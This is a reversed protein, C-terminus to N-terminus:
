FYAHLVIMLNTLSNFHPSVPDNDREVIEEASSWNPETSHLIRPPIPNVALASGHPHPDDQVLIRRRRGQSLSSSTGLGSDCACSPQMSSGLHTAYSPLMSLIGEIVQNSFPLSVTDQLEQSPPRLLVSGHVVASPHQQHSSEEISIHASASVPSDDESSTSHEPRHHARRIQSRCHQLLLQLISRPNISLQRAQVRCPHAVNVPYPQSRLHTSSGAVICASAPPYPNTEKLPKDNQGRFLSIPPATRSLQRKTPSQKKKKKTKRHTSHLRVDGSSESDKDGLYGTGGAGGSSKTKIKTDCRGGDSANGHRRKTARFKNTSNLLSTDNRNSHVSITNASESFDEVSNYPNQLAPACCPTADNAHLQSCVPIGTGSIMTTAASTGSSSYSLSQNKKKVTATGSSSYSLSRNKKKVASQGNKDEGNTNFYRTNRSRTTKRKNSPTLHEIHLKLNEKQLRCYREQMLTVEARERSRPIQHVCQFTLTSAKTAIAIGDAEHKCESGCLSIGKYSRLEIIAVLEKNPILSLLTCNVLRLIPCQRAAISSTNGDAKEFLSSGDYFQPAATCTPDNILQEREPLSTLSVCNPSRLALHHHASISTIQTSEAIQEHESLNHFKIVTCNDYVRPEVAIVNVSLQEKPSSTHFKVMPLNCALLIIKESAPSHLVTPLQSVITTPTSSNFLIESLLRRNPYVGKTINHYLLTPPCLIAEELHGVAVCLGRTPTSLHHVHIQLGQSPILPPPGSFIGEIISLMLISGLESPVKWLTTLVSKAGAQIFAWAMGQIGDAKVTVRGSDCCSLIVLAQSIHGHLREQQLSAADGTSLCQLAQQHLALLNPPFQYRSSPPKRKISFNEYEGEYQGDNSEAAIPPPKVTGISNSASEFLSLEPSINLINTQELNMKGVDGRSIILDRIVSSNQRRNKVDAPDLPKLTPDIPNSSQVPLQVETHASAKICLNAIEQLSRPHSSFPANKIDQGQCLSPSFKKVKLMIDITLALTKGDVNAIGHISTPKMQCQISGATNIFARLIHVLDESLPLRDINSIASLWALMSSEYLCMTGAELQFPSSLLFQFIFCDRKVPAVLENQMRCCEQFFEGWQDSFHISIALLRSTCTITEYDNHWNKLRALVTPLDGIPIHNTRHVESTAPLPHTTNEFETMSAEFNIEVHHAAKISQPMCTLTEIQGEANSTPCKFKCNRTPFKSAPVLVHSCTQVRHPNDTKVEFLQPEYKCDLNSHNSPQDDSPSVTITPRTDKESPSCHDLNGNKARDVVGDSLCPTHNRIKFKCRQPRPPRQCYCKKIRRRKKRSGHKKKKQNLRHDQDKDCITTLSPILTKNTSEVEQETLSTECIVHYFSQIRYLLDYFRSTVNGKYIAIVVIVIIVIGPGVLAKHFDICKFAAHALALVHDSNAKLASLISSVNYAAAATESKQALTSSGAVETVNPMLCVAYQSANNTVIGCQQPFFILFIVVFFIINWFLRCSQDAKFKVLVPTGPFSALGKCASYHEVRRKETTNKCKTHYAPLIQRVAQCIQSLMQLLSLIASSIAFFASSTSLFSLAGSQFPHSYLLSLFIVNSNMSREEQAYTALHVYNVACTHKAEFSQSVFEKFWENVHTSYNSVSFPLSKSLTQPDAAQADCMDDDMMRWNENICSGNFDLAHTSLPSGLDVTKQSHSIALKTTFEMDEYMCDWFRPCYLLHPRKQENLNFNCSTQNSMLSPTPMIIHVTETHEEMLSIAPMHLKGDALLVDYRGHSHQFRNMNVNGAPAQHKFTTQIEEIISFFEAPSMTDAVVHIDAALSRLRNKIDSDHGAAIHATVSQLQNSIDNLQHVAQHIFILIIPFIILCIAMFFHYFSVQFKWWTTPNSSERNNSETKESYDEKSSFSSVETLIADLSVGDLTENEESDNEVESLVPSDASVSLETESDDAAFCSHVEYKYKKKHIRQDEDKSKLKKILDNNDGDLVDKKKESLRNSLQEISIESFEDDDDSGKKFNKVINKVKIDSTVDSIFLGLKTITKKDDNIKTDLESDSSAKSDM